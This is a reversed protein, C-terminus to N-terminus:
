MSNSKSNRKKKKKLIEQNMIRISRKEDSQFKATIKTNKAIKQLKNKKKKSVPTHFIFPM